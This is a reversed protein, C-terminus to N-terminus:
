PAEAPRLEQNALRRATAARRAPLSVPSIAAARGDGAVPGVPLASQDKALVDQGLRMLGGTSWPMGVYREEGERSRRRLAIWGDYPGAVGVYWRNDDKDYRGFQMSALAAPMTLRGPKALDDRSPKEYVSIFVEQRASATGSASRATGPGSNPPMGGQDNRRKIQYCHQGDEFMEQGAYQHLADGLLTSALVQCASDAGAKVPLLERLQRDDPVAALRQATTSIVRWNQAGVAFSRGGLSRWTRMTQVRPGEVPSRAFLERVLNVAQQDTVVAGPRAQVRWARAADGRDWNMEYLSVSPQQVYPGQMAVLVYRMGADFLVSPDLLLPVSLGMSSATCSTGDHTAGLVVIESERAALVINDGSAKLEAAPATHDPVFIGRRLSDGGQRAVLFLRGTSPTRLETQDPGVSIVSCTTKSATPAEIFANSGDAPRPADGGVWLASSLLIRLNGNVPSEVQGAIRRLINEQRKVPPIWNLAQLRDKMRAHGREVLQAADVLPRLSKAAAGVHPYSETMQTQNAVNGAEFFLEAMTVAPSQVFVYFLLFPVLLLALSLVAALGWRLRKRGADHARQRAQSARLFPEVESKLRALRAGDRDLLLFRFWADREPASSLVEELRADRLRRLEATDLLL